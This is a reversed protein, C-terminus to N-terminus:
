CKKIKKLSGKPKFQVNEVYKYQSVRLGAGGPYVELFSKAVPHHDQDLDKVTLPFKQINKNKMFHEVQWVLPFKFGSSTREYQRTTVFTFHEQERYYSDFLNPFFFQRVRRQEGIGEYNWRRESKLQLNLYVRDVCEEAGNGYVKYQAFMYQLSDKKKFGEKKAVKLYREKPGWCSPDKCNIRDWDYLVKSNTINKVQYSRKMELINEKERYIQIAESCSNCLIKQTSPNEQSGQGYKVWLGDLNEPFPKYTDELFLEGKVVKEKKVNYKRMWM